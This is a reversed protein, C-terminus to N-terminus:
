GRLGLTHEGEARLSESAVDPLILPKTGRGAGSLAKRSPSREVVAEDETPTGLALALLAEM